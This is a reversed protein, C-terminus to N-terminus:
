RAEVPCSNLLVNTLQTMDTWDRRRKNIEINRICGRFNDQQLLISKVPGSSYPLGGIYLPFRGTLIRGSDKKVGYTEPYKDVRLRAQNQVYYAKVTHWRNDCMAFRTAFKMRARIPEKSGNQVSFVVEGDHLELALAPRADPGSVSILVGDLATTRFHLALSVEDGLQFSDDYTAFSDGGFFTGQEVHANCQAVKLSTNQRLTLNYVRQRVALQRICGKFSETRLTTLRENGLSQQDGYSSQPLGGVYLGNGAPLRGLGRASTEPGGDVALSYRRGRKTLTVRKWTGDNLHGGATLEMTKARRTANFIVAGNRLMLVFHAQRKRRENYLLLGNPYFTRFSLSVNFNKRQLEKKSVQQFVHSHPGDGFKLARDALTVQRPQHCRDPAPETAMQDTPTSRRRGDSCRGIKAREYRLPSDFVLLRDGLIVDTLCGRFAPPGGLQPGLDAPVGGLFLGGRAPVRVGSSGPVLQGSGVSQDGVLLEIRRSTKLVSVTHFRGGGNYTGESTINLLGTGGDVTLELRGGVLRLSYVESLDASGAASQGAFTSIVLLGDPADAKFSLGFSANRKLRYSDTELYGDGQFSVTRLEQGTCGNTVGTSNGSRLNQATDIQVDRVCGLLPVFTLQSWPRRDFDPSVGGVYLKSTDLYLALEPPSDGGVPNFTGKPGDGNVKLLVEKEYYTAEIQTWNGTNHRQKSKVVLEANKSFAVRFVVFGDRLELSFLQGKKENAVLLLLADPDFTRMWLSAPLYIRRQGSSALPSLEVYGEGDFASEPAAALEDARPGTRCAGCDRTEQFNWLGLTQGNISVDDLCGAFRDATVPAPLPRDRPAGIFVPDEGTLELVTLGDTAAASVPSPDAGGGGPEMPRVLLRGLSGIRTAEISYWRDDWLLQENNTELKLPHIVSQTSGGNNWLFRVRRDVMEVALFDSKGTAGIFLLLADTIAPESVAYRLRLASTAGPQLESVRYRRSCSTGNSTLSVRIKSAAQRTKLIKNKLQELQLKADKTSQTASDAREEVQIALKAAESIIEAAEDVMQLGDNVGAESQRQLKDLGPRLESQLGSEVEGTRADVAAAKALAARAREAAAAVSRALETSNLQKLERQIVDNQSRVDRVADSVRQLSTKNGALDASLANVQRGLQEAAKLLEESKDKAQEGQSTLSATDVLGVQQNAARATENAAELIDVIEQYARAAALSANAGQRTGQFLSALEEAQQNLQAAHAEAPLLYEQVFDPSLQSLEAMRRQLESDNASVRQLQDRLDTLDITQGQAQDYLRRLPLLADSSNALLGEVAETENSLLQKRQDLRLLRARLDDLLAETETVTQRAGEILRGMDQLKEQLRELRTRPESLATGNPELARVRDLLRGVEALEDDARRQAGTFNQRRLEELIASAERLAQDVSTSPSGGGMYRELDTMTRQETVQVLLNEAMTDLDFSDNLAQLSVRVGIYDTLEEDLRETENSITYLTDWPAGASSPVDVAAALEYLADLDVLLLGVCGDECAQCGRATQVHRPPCATCDRGTRGARCPCQGTTPDCHDAVSGARDCGCPVCGVSPDRADGYYGYDCRDCRQGYYGPLCQCRFAVRYDGTCGVAHSVTETPCLCRRCGGRDAPNGYYGVACLECNRGATNSTCNQCVGTDPHCTTARGNCQCEAVDGILDIIIQSSREESTFTRYFGISPDQCSSGSYQAPCACREIGLATDGPRGYTPEAMDWSIDWIEAKRTDIADTARVLVLTTNQLAVMLTERSVPASGDGKRRWLSEHFLSEYFRVTHLGDPGPRDDEPFYELVLRSHGQLQVLPYSALVAAPFPRVGGETRLRFRLEGNYSRVKDGLFQPPLEWYVPTDLPQGLGLQVDGSREPIVRLTNIIDLRTQGPGLTLSRKDPLTLPVWTFEAQSCQGSRTFCFCATCGDPNDASLGFTNPACQDCRAGRVNTKCYCRGQQDCPCNAQDDCGATGAPDCQCRRCRPFSYFGLSCRECRPGGFGGACGCRGTWSDCHVSVSGTQNCACKRCGATPHHGWYGPECLQCAAGVTHPPCTCHGTDPDCLHGPLDCPGCERCGSSSLLFYGPLCATCRAGGVGRRCLCRGSEPDCVEPASGPSACDCRRCGAGPRMGYYGAKCRDCALGTVHPQCVCQGTRIDCRSHVSGVPDCRCGYQLGRWDRYLRDQGRDLYEAAAATALLLPVWVRLSRM